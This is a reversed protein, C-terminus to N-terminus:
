GKKQHGIAWVYAAVAALDNDSLSVGGFPPMAGPHQKPQPVGNKIIDTISRLSGDGWLWTGSTLDAGVPTGIGDAGHCGACTGGAVEGHFIKKGLAVQEATAGPPVPLEATTGAEPHVGEPPLASPSAGAEISPTPAAEIPANPDGSYTVRWIRGAKDDTIYLGGDPSVALHHDSRERGSVPVTEVHLSELAALHDQVHGRIDDALLPPDVVLTMEAYLCHGLLRARVKAASHHLSLNRKDHRDAFGIQV